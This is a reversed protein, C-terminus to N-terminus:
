RAGSSLAPRSRQWKVYLLALITCVILYLVLTPAFKEGPYNTAALALAIAPHRSATSLALMAAHEPEPGGLWHGVILGAVVFIVIALVTWHGASAGIARWTGALLVLVGVILLLMAVRRVPVVLHPAVRPAFRSVLMGAALPAVIMTLVIKTIAAPGAKLPQEFLWSFLTLSLPVTVISVLALVVLMGLGYPAVSGAKRQKRPLLPPMPSIALATLVVATPQPLDLFYVCAVVLMPMVCLMAMLSRLLLGPRHVIYLLDGRTAQLGYTFVTGVIAIQIALVVLAATTM